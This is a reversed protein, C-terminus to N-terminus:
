NDAVYPNSRREQAFTSREGHGPVFTVDGLPWLKQKISKMLDAANGGPFDTRGISNKFLVDGVLALNIDRNYFVVHGPTHGPCHIVQWNAEGVAVTDGDKLWRDSEFSDMGELGYLRAQQSISATLFLDDKHPGEILAGTAAKLAKAGGGHDLHGHTVWIKELSLGRKKIESLILDVEGGPDVVAAKNTKACWVLTCNQSFPTVPIISWNVSAPQPM